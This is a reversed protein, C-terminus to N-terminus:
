KQIEQLLNLIDVSMLEPIDDIVKNIIELKLLEEKNKKSTKLDDFAKIYAEELKHGQHLLFWNPLNIKLNNLLAVEKFGEIALAEKDTLFPHLKNLIIDAITQLKESDFNKLDIYTEDTSLGLEERGIYKERLLLAAILLPDFLYNEISYRQKWGLVSVFKCEPMETNRDWDIIGWIFNNGYGRMLTTIEKVIDCSHKGVGFENKQVDGSAIFNLSIEPNLKTSLIASLREYYKVDYPSEVFVQRRNEYNISFSPVGETLIKLASDRSNKEIVSDGTQGAMIYISDEPALAVTTPSHTTMIVKMGKEKVFIDEVVKLFYKIMSPHLSADPEDMLLVQPFPLDHKLNYISLATLIIVQEGTSLSQFQLKTGTVKHTFNVLFFNSYLDIDPKDVIYNIDFSEFVENIYTWPAKGYHKIFEDETHYSIQSEGKTKNKFENYKNEELREAYNLCISFFNMSFIDHLGLHIPSHAQFDKQLLINVDKKAIQAIKEIELRWPYDKEKDNFNHGEAKLLEYHHHLHSHEMPDNRNGRELQVQELQFASYNILKISNIDYDNTIDNNVVNSKIAKLLHTKGSGNLGTVVTFDPLNIKFPQLFLHKEELILKM